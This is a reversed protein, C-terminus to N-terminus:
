TRIFESNGLEMDTILNKILESSIIWTIKGKPYKIYHKTSCLSAIYCSDIINIHSIDIVLNECTKEQIYTNIYELIETQDVGKPTLTETFQPLKKLMYIGKPLMNYTM